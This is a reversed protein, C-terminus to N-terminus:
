SKGGYPTVVTVTHGKPRFWVVVMQDQYKLVLVM